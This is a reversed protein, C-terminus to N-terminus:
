RAHPANQNHTTHHLEERLRTHTETTKAACSAYDALTGEAETTLGATLLAGFEHRLRTEHDKYTVKYRTRDHIFFGAVAGSGETACTACKEGPEQVGHTCPLHLLAETRTLESRLRSSLELRTGHSQLQRRALASQLWITPWATRDDASNPERPPQRTTIDRATTRRRAVTRRQQKHTTKSPDATQQEHGTQEEGMDSHAEDSVDSDSHAETVDHLTQYQVSRPQKTNRRKSPRDGHTGDSTTGRDPNRGTHQLGNASHTRRATARKSRTKSHPDQTIVERMARRQTTQQGTALHACIGGFLVNLSQAAIEDHPEGESSTTYESNNHDHTRSHTATPEADKQKECRPDPETQTDGSSSNACRCGEGDSERQGTNTSDGDSEGTSNKAKTPAQQRTTHATDNSGTGGDTDSDSPIRPRRKGSRPATDARAAPPSQARTNDATNQRSLAHITQAIAAASFRPDTQRYCADPVVNDLAVTLTEHRAVLEPAREVAKRLCRLAIDIIDTNDSRFKLERSGPDLTYITGHIYAIASWQAGAARTDATQNIHIVSPANDGRATQRREAHGPTLFVVSMVDDFATLIKTADDRETLAVLTEWGQTAAYNEIEYETPLEPTPSGAVWGTIAAQTSQQDAQIKAAENITDTINNQSKHWTPPPPPPPQHFWAPPTSTPRTDSTTHQPSCKHSRASKTNAWNIKARSCKTCDWGGAKLEETRTHHQRANARAPAAHRAFWVETYKAIDLGRATVLDQDKHMLNTLWRGDELSPSSNASTYHADLVRQVGERQSTM